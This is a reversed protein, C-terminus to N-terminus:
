IVEIVYRRKEGQYKVKKYKTKIGEKKELENLLYKVRTKKMNGLCTNGFSELHKKLYKIYKKDKDEKEPILYEYNELNYEKIEEPKKLKREVFFGKLEKGNIAAKLLTEDSTHLLKVIQKKRGSYIIKGDKLLSYEYAEKKM